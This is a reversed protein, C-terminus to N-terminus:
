NFAASFTQFKVKKKLARIRKETDEGTTGPNPAEGLDSTRSPVSVDLAELESVLADVSGNSPTM